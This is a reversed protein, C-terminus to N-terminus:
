TKLAYMIIGASVAANLSEVGNEMPIAVTIKGATKVEQSVGHGENGIALCFKGKLDATFVNEGGMDAVVIPKDIVSLIEELSGFHTKVRFIGGM